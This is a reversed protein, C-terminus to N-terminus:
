RVAAVALTSNDFTLRTVDSGDANMVFINEFLNTEPRFSSFYIQQGNRSWAPARSCFQNNPIGAPKPTLNTVHDGDSDIVYVSCYGDRFSMFAIQRGNPSWTAMQDLTVHDTLRVPNMGDTDILYIDGYGPSLSSNETRRGNPFNTWVRIIQSATLGTGDANILYIEFNGDVNSHFAIQRGNPSWRPWCDSIGAGNFTLQRVSSGDADMIM